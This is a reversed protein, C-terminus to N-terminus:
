FVLRHVPLGTRGTFGSSLPEGTRDGTRNRVVHAVACATKTVQLKVSGFDKRNQHVVLKINCM